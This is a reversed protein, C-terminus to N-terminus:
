DADFVDSAQAVTVARDLWENLQDLDTCGAIRARQQDTIAVGRKNLVRLVGDAIGEARGEARLQRSFSSRYFSSDMAM